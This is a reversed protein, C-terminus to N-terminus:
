EHFIGRIEKAWEECTEKSEFGNALLGEIHGLIHNELTFQGSYDGLDYRGTYRFDKNNTHTIEFKTKDYGRYEMYKKEMNVAANVDAFKENIMEIEVLGTYTEEEKFLGNESWLVTIVYEGTQEELEIIEKLLRVKEETAKLELKLSELKTM